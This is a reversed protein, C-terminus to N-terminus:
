GRPETSTHIPSISVMIRLDTRWSVSSASLSYGVTGRPSKTSLCADITTMATVCCKQVIPTSFPM